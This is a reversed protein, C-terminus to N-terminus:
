VTIEPNDDCVEGIEDTASEVTEQLLPLIENIIPQLATSIDADYKIELLKINNNVCYERLITDRLIQENYKEIGGFYDIPEYHQKGNFEIVYEKNHVNIYFDLRYNRNDLVTKHQTVFPIKYMTLIKYITKEGHSVSCYPCGEGSLHHLPTQWFSGHEKCIIEVPTKCDIYNVKSYDYENLHVKNAKEIFEDTNSKLTEGYALMECHKCGFRYINNANTERITGCTKCKVKVHMCDIFEVLEFKDGNTEAFKKLFYEKSKELQADKVGCKPCGRRSVAVSRATTEWQHGCKTCQLIVKENAGKYESIINIHPFRQWIEEQCEERTKKTNRQAM